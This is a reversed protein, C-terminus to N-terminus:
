NDFGFILEIDQGSSLTGTWQPAGLGVTDDCVGDQRITKLDFWIIGKKYQYPDITIEYTGASLNNFAFSLDNGVSVSRNVDPGTISVNIGKIQNPGDYGSCNEGDDHQLKGYITGTEGECSAADIASQVSVQPPNTTRVSKMYYTRTNPITFYVDSLYEGSELDGGYSDVPNVSDTSEYFDIRDPLPTGLDTWRFTVRAPSTICDAEATFGTPQPPVDLCSRCVPESHEGEGFSNFGVVYYCKEEEGMSDCDICDAATAPDMIYVAADTSANRIEIRDVWQMQTWAFYVNDTSIECNPTVIFNEPKAPPATPGEGDGDGPGDGDGDGPGDGTDGSEFAVPIVKVISRQGSFNLELEGIPLFFPDVNAVVSIHLIDGNELLEDNVPNAPAPDQTWANACDYITGGNAKEYTITVDHSSAFFSNSAEEFMGECDLYPKNGDEYGFIEAYRLAERLSNSAQSYSFLIMGFDILGAIFLMLIPLSLTFEVLAQGAEKKTKPRTQRKLRSLM